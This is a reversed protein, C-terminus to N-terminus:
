NPWCARLNPGLHYGRPCLVAGGRPGVVVRPGEADPDGYAGPAPGGGGRNPVCDGYYGRHYGWGCGSATKTIASRDKDAGFFPAPGAAALSPLSGAIMIMAAFAMKRM